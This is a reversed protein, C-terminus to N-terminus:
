RRLRHSRQDPPKHDYLRQGCLYRGPCVLHESVAMFSQLMGFIAFWKMSIERTKLDEYSAIWLFLLEMGQVIYIEWNM